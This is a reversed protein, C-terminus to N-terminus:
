NLPFQVLVGIRSDKSAIASGNSLKELQPVSYDLRITSKIGFLKEFGSSLVGVPDTAILIADDYWRLQQKRKISERWPEFFFAGILSGAVPTLILDQISPNEFFCEIGFEYMASILVSYVFSPTKDLGRERARIYYTAGWYPHLLYNVYFKDKDFVPHGVNKSYKKLSDKKQEKSWGSVSEPLLYIVGAAVVQSGLLMGTDRWVGNWDPALNGEVATLSPAEGAATETAPPSVTGVQSSTTNRFITKGVPYVKNPDDVQVDDFDSEESAPFSALASPTDHGASQTSASTKTHTALLLILAAFALRVVRDFRPRILSCVAHHPM